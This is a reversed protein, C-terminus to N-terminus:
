PQNVVGLFLPLNSNGTVAFLFPRDLTFDVVEDPAPAAGVLMLDVYSAATCGEEDIAVRAAHQAQSVYIPDDTVAGLPDFNSLSGDFVDTIGLARLGAALELESSVDFKPLSLNVRLFEQNPWAGTYEATEEDYTGYKSSMLFEMAEGSAVLDDVTYGEDPLILWMSYNWAQFSLNIASFHEGWYYNHDREQWHLFEAEVDGSPSHFVDRTNLEPSFPSSWASKFYLTSVLRLVTAPDFSLGDAQETLMGRTQENVWDRLAHDYEASGMEGAFSSTQYNASLTDLTDQSCSMDDRLWLSNAMVSIGLDEDQYYNQWVVAADERLAEISDAGLADLIQRRSEGGATEALMALAMYLNLPSYVRNDEGAGTLFRTTSATVFDGISTNAALQNRLAQMADRWPEFAEWYADYDTTGDANRFDEYNPEPPLEFGEAVSLAYALHSGDGYTEDGPRTPDPNEGIRPGPHASVDPGNNSLPAPEGSPGPWLAAGGILAVALVAAVAGAWRPYPRKVAPRAANEKLEEPAHIGGNAKKYRNM